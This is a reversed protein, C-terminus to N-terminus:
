RSCRKIIDSSQSSFLECSSASSDARRGTRRTRGVRESKKLASIEAVDKALPMARHQRRRRGNSSRRRLSEDWAGFHFVFLSLHFQSVPSRNYNAFEGGVIGRKKAEIVADAIENCTITFVCVDLTQKAGNIVELLRCLSTTEHAYNCNAGRKCPKGQLFARCPLAVDPFFLV